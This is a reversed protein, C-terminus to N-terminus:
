GKGEDSGSGPRLNAPIADYTDALRVVVPTLDSTVESCIKPLRGRWPSLARMTPEWAKVRERLEALERDKEAIIAQDSNHSDEAAKWYAIVDSLRAGYNAGEEQEESEWGADNDIIERLELLAASDRPDTGFGIPDGNVAEHAALKGKLDALERAASARGAIFASRAIAIDIIGPDYSTTETKACEPVTGILQVLFADSPEESVEADAPEQEDDNADFLRTGTLRNLASRLRPADDARIPVDTLADLIVQADILRKRVSEDGSEETRAPAASRLHQVLSMCGDLIRRDAEGLSKSQAELFSRAANDLHDTM